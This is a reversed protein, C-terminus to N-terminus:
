CELETDYRIGGGTTVCMIDFRERAREGGGGYRVWSLWFM